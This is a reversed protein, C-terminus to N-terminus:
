MNNRIYKSSVNYHIIKGRCKEHANCKQNPTVNELVHEIFFMFNENRKFFIQKLVDKWFVHIERLKRKLICTERQEFEFFQM